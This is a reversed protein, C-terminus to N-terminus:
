TGRPPPQSRLVQRSRILLRGVPYHLRNILANDSAGIWPIRRRFFDSGVAATARRRTAKTFYTMAVGIAVGNGPKVWDTTTNITHGCAPPFYLGDGPGVEFRLARTDLEPDYRLGDPDGRVLYGEAASAPVAIRDDPQWIRWTKRGAIQLNFINERDIHFPTVSPPAAIFIFMNFESMGPDIAEVQPAVLGLADHLLDRYIPDDEPYYIAVWSGPLEIEDFVKDVTTRAQKLSLTHFPTGEWTKPLSLKINKASGALRGALERLADLRLLPHQDFNHRLPTIARPEFPADHASIIEYKNCKPANVKLQAEAPQMGDITM